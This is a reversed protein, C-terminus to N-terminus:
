MLPRRQHFRLLHALIVRCSLCRSCWLFFFHCHRQPSKKKGQSRIEGQWIVGTLLGLSPAWRMVFLPPPPSPCWITSNGIRLKASIQFLLGWWPRAVDALKETWQVIALLRAEWPSDKVWTKWRWVRKKDVGAYPICCGPLLCTALTGSM